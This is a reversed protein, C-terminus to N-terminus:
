DDMQNDVFKERERERKDLVPVRGKERERERRERQELKKSVGAEVADVMVIM